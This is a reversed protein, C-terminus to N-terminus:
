RDKIPPVLSGIQLVITGDCKNVIQAECEDITTYKNETCEVVTDDPLDKITEKLDKITM